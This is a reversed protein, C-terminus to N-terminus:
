WQKQGSVQGSVQGSIANTNSPPSQPLAGLAGLFHNAIFFHDEYVRDQMQLFASLPIWQADAADDAARIATLKGWQSHSLEFFFAHTITRGRQSRSPDDFVHNGKLSGRLVPVPVKLKTEEKLERIAADLLKEDQGVFGGPLAWTGKGPSFKRQVMLIHGAEIVVADVTTYIPRFASGAYSYKDKYDLLFSREEVLAAYHPTSAFTDLFQATGAPVMSATINSRSDPDFYQNRIDTANLSQVNRFPQFRWRPFLKLYYSSSDKLHGVLAVSATEVANGDAMILSDVGNQIAAIWVSDNYPADAVGVISTRANSDSDITSRIMREREELTFPNKYSRHKKDSGVVVVARKSISLAHQLLALHGMHFPQFRGILVAYDYHTASVTSDNKSTNNM